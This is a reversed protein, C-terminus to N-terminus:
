LHQRLLISHQDLTHTQDLLMKAFGLIVWEPEIASRSPGIWIELTLIISRPSFPAFFFFAFFSLSCPYLFALFSSYPVM